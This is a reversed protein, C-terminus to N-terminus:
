ENNWPDSNGQWSSVGANVAADYKWTTSEFPEAERCEGVLANMRAGVGLALSSLFKM